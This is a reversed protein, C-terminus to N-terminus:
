NEKLFIHSISNWIENLIQEENKNGDVIIITEDDKLKVFSEIYKKRVHTLRELTEFLESKFRGKSIRRVAEEPDIDIFITCTPKLQDACISNASIVWDMDMDVGHYAYSSFYYRDSIVSIGDNIKHLIGDVENLLHDLRDAVFLPAIVKNDTKIRGIMIQHILSGVPSDTPEHTEYCRIGMSHLKDTLLKIQTSKGSGDIGEFVIFNGPKNKTNNM